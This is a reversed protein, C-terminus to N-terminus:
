LRSAQEAAEAQTLVTVGRTEFGAANFAAVAAGRDATPVTMWKQEFTGIAGFPRVYGVAEFSEPQFRVLTPKAKLFSEVSPWKRVSERDTQSAWSPYMAFAESLGELTLMVPRDRAVGFGTGSSRNPIHVTSLRLGELRHNEIYGIRQGDTFFAYTQWAPDASQYVTLGLGAITGLTDAFFTDSM